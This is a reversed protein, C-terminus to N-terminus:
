VIDIFLANAAAGGSDGRRYHALQVPSKHKARRVAFFM